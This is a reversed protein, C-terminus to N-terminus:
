PKPHAAFFEWIMQAAPVAYPSPWAHGMGALQVIEVNIGAPCNGWAEHPYQGAPSVDRGGTCGNRLAWNQVVEEVPPFPHNITGIVNGGGAYPMFLDNMGHLYLISVPEEPECPSYELAGSMGAVAAFVTSMQCAFREVLFSGNDWGTAYIREPDIAALTGIDSLIAKIFAPEDVGDRAANGCCLGGDFSLNSANPGSGNPYTVVFGNADAVGDFGTVQRAYEGTFGLGHFVLVLPIPRDTPIGAPIHLVYTREIGDVTVTRVTDGSLLVPAPEASGLTPVAAQAASTLRGCGSALIVALCICFAPIRQRMAFGGSSFTIRSQRLDSRAPILVPQRLVVM